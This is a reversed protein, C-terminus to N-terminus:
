IASGSYMAVSERCFCAHYGSSINAESNGTILSLGACHMTAHYMNCTDHVAHHQHVLLAMLCVLSGKTVNDVLVVFDACIVAHQWCTPPM